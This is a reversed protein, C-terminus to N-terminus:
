ATKRSGLNMSGPWKAIRGLGFNQKRIIDNKREEPICDFCTEFNQNKYRKKCIPCLNKGNEVAYHCRNCLIIIDEPNFEMYKQVHLEHEIEIETQLKKDKLFEQYNQKGFKRKEKVKL